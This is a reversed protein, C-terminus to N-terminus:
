CSFAVSILRMRVILAIKELFVSMLTFSLDIPRKVVVALKTFDPIKKLVHAITILM